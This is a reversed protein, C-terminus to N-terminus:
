KKAQLRCLAARIRDQEQQQNKQQYAEPNLYIRWEEIERADMSNLLQQVTM